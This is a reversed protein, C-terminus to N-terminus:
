ASDTKLLQKDAPMVKVLLHRFRNIQDEGEFFHKPILAIQSKGLYLQFLEEQEKVLTVDRWDVPAESDAVRQTFGEENFTYSMTKRNMGERFYQRYAQRQIVMRLTGAILAGFVFATALMLGLAQMDTGGVSDSMYLLVFTLLFVFSFSAPVVSRQHYLAHKMFDKETLKGSLHLEIQEPMDIKREQCPHIRKTEM